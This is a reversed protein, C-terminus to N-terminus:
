GARARFRAKSSLASWSPGALRVGLSFARRRRSGSLMTANWSLAPPARSDSDAPRLDSAWVWYVRESRGSWRGGLGDVAWRTLSARRPSVADAFGAGWTRVRDAQWVPVGPRQTIGNEVPIHARTTPLETRRQARRPAEPRAAVLSPARARWQVIGQEGEQTRPGERHAEESQCTAIRRSWEVRRIASSVVANIVTGTGPRPQFLGSRSGHFQSGVAGVGVM